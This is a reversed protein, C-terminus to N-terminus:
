ATVSDFLFTKLQRCFAAFSDTSRLSSLIPKIPVKRFSTLCRVVYFVCRSLSELHSILYMDYRYIVWMTVIVSPIEVVQGIFFNVYMDGYLNPTNLALGYYVMTNLARCTTCAALVPLSLLYACTDWRILTSV